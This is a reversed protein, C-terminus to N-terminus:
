RVRRFVVGETPDDLLTGGALAATIVSADGYRQAMREFTWEAAPTWGATVGTLVVPRSAGFYRERFVAPTPASAREVERVPFPLDRGTSAGSSALAEAM